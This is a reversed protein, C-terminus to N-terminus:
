HRTQAPVAIALSARFAEFERLAEKADAINALDPARLEQVIPGGDVGSFTHDQRDKYQPFRNKMQFIFAPTNFRMGLHVGAQGVDEWYALSLEYAETVAERFEENKQMWNSWTKHHIGLDRKIQAKSKGQKGLAIVRNCMKPDYKGRGNGKSSKETKAAATKQKKAM